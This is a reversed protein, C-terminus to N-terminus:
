RNKQKLCLSLTYVSSGCLMISPVIGMIVKEWQPSLSLLLVLALPTEKYPPLTWLASRRDSLVKDPRWRWNVCPSGSGWGSMDLRLVLSFFLVANETMRVEKEEAYRWRTQTPSLPPLIRTQCNLLRQSNPEVRQSIMQINYIAAQSYCLISPSLPQLTETPLLPISLYFSM